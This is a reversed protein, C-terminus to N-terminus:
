YCGLKTGIRVGFPGKVAELYGNFGHYGRSRCYVFAVASAVIIIGIFVVWVWRFATARDAAAASHAGVADLLDLTARQVQVSPSIAARDVLETSM